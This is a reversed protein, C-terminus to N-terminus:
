KLLNQEKKFFHYRKCVLMMFVLSISETLNWKKLSSFNAFYNHLFDYVIKKSGASCASVVELVTQLRCVTWFCFELGLNGWFLFSMEQQFHQFNSNQFVEFGTKSRKGAEFVKRLTKKQFYANWFVKGGIKMLIPSNIVFFAGRQFILM